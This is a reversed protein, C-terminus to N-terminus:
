QLDLRTSSMIVHWVEAETIKKGTLTNLGVNVKLPYKKSNKQSFTVGNIDVLKINENKITRLGIVIANEDSQSHKLLNKYNDSYIADSRLEINVDIGINKALTSFSQKQLAGGHLYLKILGPTSGLQKWDTVDGKLIKKLDKLKINNINSNKSVYVPALETFYHKTTYGEVNLTTGHSVIVHYSKKRAIDKLEANSFAHSVKNKLVGPSCSTSFYIPAGLPPDEEFLLSAVINENALASNLFFIVAVSLTIYKKM